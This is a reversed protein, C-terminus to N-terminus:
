NTSPHQASAFIFHREHVKRKEITLGLQKRLAAVLTPGNTEDWAIDYDYLGKLGTENVVPDPSIQNLFQALTGIPQNRAVIKILDNPGPKPSPGIVFKSAGGSAPKVKPEGHVILASGNVDMEEWKYKLQFREELLRQLMLRLDAETTRPNGSEAEVDFRETGSIAWVPAGEIHDIKQVQYAMAIMHSLRADRISCRGLPPPAQGNAPVVTDSGRCGGSYGNLGSTAPKVSAVEFVPRTDPSPPQASLATVTLALAGLTSAARLTRTM